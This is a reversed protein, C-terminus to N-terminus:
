SMVLPSQSTPASVSIAESPVRLSGLQGTIHCIHDGGDAKSAAVGLELYRLGWVGGTRLLHCESSFTMQRAAAHVTIVRTAMMGMEVKVPEAFINAVRWPFEIRTVETLAERTLELALMVSETLEIKQAGSRRGFM